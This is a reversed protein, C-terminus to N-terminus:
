KIIKEGCIPCYRWELHKIGCCCPNKVVITHKKLIEEIEEISTYDFNIDYLADLQCESIIHFIFTNRDDSMSFSTGGHCEHECNCAYSFRCDKLEAGGCDAITITPDEQKIFDDYEWQEAWIHITANLNEDRGFKVKVM